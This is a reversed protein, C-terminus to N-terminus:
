CERDTDCGVAARHEQVQRALRGGLSEPGEKLRMGCQKADSWLPGQSEHERAREVM